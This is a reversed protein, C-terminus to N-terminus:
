NENDGIKGTPLKFQISVTVFAGTDKLKRASNGEECIATATRGTANVLWM